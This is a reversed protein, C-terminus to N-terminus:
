HLVVFKGVQTRLTQGDRDRVTVTYLYVGNALPQGADNVAWLVLSNGANRREIIRSGALTFITVEIEAVTSGQARFELPRARSLVTGSVSLELGAGLATLQHSLTLLGVSARKLDRLDELDICPDDDDDGDPDNGPILPLDGIVIRKPNLIAEGDIFVAGEPDVEIMCFPPAIDAARLQLLTFATRDALFRSLLRIDRRNIKGDGTLDGSTIQIRATGEHTDFDPLPNGDFDLAQEIEIVLPSEAGVEATEVAEVEIEFIEGAGILPKRGEKLSLTFECEGDEGCDFEIAYPGLARVRPNGRADRKVRVVAPDYSFTGNLVRLGPVAVNEVRVRVKVASALLADGVILLPPEVRVTLFSNAWAVKPPLVGILGEDNRDCQSNITDAGTCAATVEVGVRIIDGDQFEAGLEAVVYLRAAPVGSPLQILARRQAGFTAYDRVDPPNLNCAIPGLTCPGVPPRPNIFPNVIEALLADSPQWGPGTWGAERYLKLKKVGRLVRPDFEDGRFAEAVVTIRDVRLTSDIGEEFRKEIAFQQLVVTSGANAEQALRMSEDIVFAGLDNDPEPGLVNLVNPSTKTLSCHGEDAGIGSTWCSSFGPTEAGILSDGAFMTVALQLTDGRQAATSLTIVIFLTAEGGDEVTFLLRDKIGFRVGPCDEDRGPYDVDPDLVPQFVVGLLDDANEGFGHFEGDGTDRYLRLEVIDTDRLTSGGTKVVCVREVNLPMGDNDTDEVNDYVNIQDIAQFAGPSLYTPGFNPDFSFDAKADAWVPGAMLALAGVFGLFAVVSVKFLKKM